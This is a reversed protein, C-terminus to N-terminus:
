RSAVSASALQRTITGLSASCIRVPSITLTANRAWRPQDRSGAALYKALSGRECCNREGPNAPWRPASGPPRRGPAAAAPGCARRRATSCSGAPRGHTGPATPVWRRRRNSVSVSSKTTARPTNPIARPLACPDSTATRSRVRRVTRRAASPRCRSARHTATPTSRTSPPSNAGGARSHRRARQRKAEVVTEPRHHQMPHFRRYPRLVGRASTHQGLDSEALLPQQLAVEVDVTGPTVMQQHRDGDLFHPTRHRRRQNTGTM